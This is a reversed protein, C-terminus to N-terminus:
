VPVTHIPSEISLNRNRQGSMILPIREVSRKGFMYLIHDGVKMSREWTTSRTTINAKWNYM